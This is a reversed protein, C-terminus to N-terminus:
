SIGAVFDLAQRRALDLDMAKDCVRRCASTWCSCPVRPGIALYPAFKAGSDHCRPDEYGGVISLTRTGVAPGLVAAFGSSTFVLKSQQALAALAEFVLEGRHFTLDPKADPGVTWEQNDALDAVSVVFFKDRISNYIDHYALPDANRAMSGRWEPRAVLPRYLMWPKGEDQVRLPELTRALLSHWADPIPLRYDANAFSTGTVNCMVELITKSPTQLVQHGTYSVRLGARVFAHRPSFKEHERAANKAQTRLGVPRRTVKLGDAMLDHYMAPWSTELTIDRTEMLQRLVARQHLCDGMGHMGQVHLPPKM